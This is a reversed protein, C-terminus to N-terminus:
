KAPYQLNLIQAPQSFIHLEFYSNKKDVYETLKHKLFILCVQDTTIVAYM